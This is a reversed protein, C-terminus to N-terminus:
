MVMLKSLFTKNNQDRAAPKPRRRKKKVKEKIRWYLEEEGTNIGVSEDFSSISSAPQNTQKPSDLIESMKDSFKSGTLNSEGKESGDVANSELEFLIEEEMETEPKAAELEPNTEEPKQTEVELVREEKLKVKVEEVETEQIAEKTKVEKVEMEPTEGKIEPEEFDTEAKVENADAKDVEKEPKTEKVEETEAKVVEVIQAEKLDDNDEIVFFEDESNDCSKEVAIHNVVQVPASREIDTKLIDEIVNDSITAAETLASEKRERKIKKSLITEFGEDDVDKSLHPVVELVEVVLPPAVVVEIDSGDNDGTVPALTEVTESEVKSATVAAWTKDDERKVEPQVEVAATTLSIGNAEQRVAATLIELNTESSSLSMVDDVFAVGAESQTCLESPGTEIVSIVRKLCSSVQEEANVEVAETFVPSVDKEPAVFVEKIVIAKDEVVTPQISVEVKAETEPLLEDSAAELRVEPRVEKKYEAGSLPITDEKVGPESFPKVVEPVLEEEVNVKVYQEAEHSAAEEAEAPMEPETLHAVEPALEMKIESQLTLVVAEEVVAEVAEADVDPKPISTAELTVESETLDPIMKAEKKSEVEPLVTSQTTM